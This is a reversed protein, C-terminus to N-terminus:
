APGPEDTHKIQARGVSKEGDGWPTFRLRPKRGRQSLPAPFWTPKQKELGPEAKQEMHVWEAFMNNGGLRNRGRGLPCMQPGDPSSVFGLALILGQVELWRMLLADKEAVRLRLLCIPFCFAPSRLITRQISM